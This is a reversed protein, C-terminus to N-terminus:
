YNHVNHGHLPFWLFDIGSVLAASLAQAALLGVFFPKGRDYLAVGGLRLVVSKIAWVLLISQGTKTVGYNGQVALGIPHLPWWPLRYRVLTLAAMVVAGMGAWMARGNGGMPMPNRISSVAQNFAYKSVWVLHARLNYAGYRYGLFLTDALSIAFGVGLGLCIVWAIRRPTVLGDVAKAAQTFAPLLFGKGSKLGGSSLAGMTAVATASAPGMLRTGMIQLVFDYPHVRYYVYALGVEAVVRALGLPILLSASLFTLVVWLEMGAAHLWAGVFVLSGVLGFVATRYSLLEGSDDTASNPQLAKRWVARLHRRAMWLSWGALFLLAGVGQWRLVESEWHTGAAGLPYGLRNFAFVECGTLLIFFWVSFLVDKRAFYGFGIAYFSIRQPLSPFDTLPEFTGREFPIEPFAPTFYSLINWLKLAMVLGFGVWFMRAHLLVPLRGGPETESLMQGVEVMPYTLREHEVWQKRLMVVLCFVAFAMGGILCTWWFLPTLWAAVPPMQGQPLGEYFWTTANGVDQTVMWGPVLDNLYRIWGNEPAAFYFFGASIGILHGVIGEFPVAMAVLGAGMVVLLETRSLGWGPRVRNLLMNLVAATLFPFFLAMPFHSRTLRSARLYFATWEAWIVGAAIVVLVTLVTGFSVSAGADPKLYLGKQELKQSSAM